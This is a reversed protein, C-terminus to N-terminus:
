GRHESPTPTAGAIACGPRGCPGALVLADGESERKHAASDSWAAGRAPGAPRLGQLHPPPPCAPWVSAARAPALVPEPDRAPATMRRFWGLFGAYGLLLGVGALSVLAHMVLTGAVMVLVMRAALSLLIGACFVPLSQQGCRIVAGAIRGELFAPRPGLLSVTVYALAFFHLLRLPALDPQAV